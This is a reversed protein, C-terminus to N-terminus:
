KSGKRPQEQGEQDDSGQVESNDDSHQQLIPVRGPPLAFSDRFLQPVPGLYAQNEYPAFRGAQSIYPTLFILGSCITLPPLMGLRLLRHWWRAASKEPRNGRYWAWSTLLRAPYILLISVPTLLLLSDEAPLRIQGLYLPITLLYLLLTTLMWSFPARRITERVKGVEFIAAFRGEVAQHIQLYPLWAAVPIMLLFGLASIIAFAPGSINPASCAVMMTTPLFLWILGGSFARVGIMVHRVPAILQLTNDLNSSLTARGSRTALQRLGSLLNRLPRLLLLPRCGNLLFCLLHVGCIIQLVTLFGRMQNVTPHKNGLIVAANHVRAAQLRIPLSVLLTALLMWGAQPAIRLLPFGDRFRGSLAVRRQPDILMGLTLLNLVPIAALVSLVALLSLVAFFRGPLKRALTLLRGSAFASFFSTSSVVSVEAPLIMIGARIRATAPWRQPYRFHSDLTKLSLCIANHFVPFGSM